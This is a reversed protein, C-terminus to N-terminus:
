RSLLVDLSSTKGPEVTVSKPAPKSFNGAITGKAEVSYKGPPVNDFSYSGNDAPKTQAYEGGGADRLIVADVRGGV